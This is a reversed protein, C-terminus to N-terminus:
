RYITDIYRDGRDAFVTIVNLEEDFFHKKKFYKKIAMYASGSSGGAFIKYKNLLEHCGVITSKENVLIYDDMKAQELIKPRKSSGIGPIRRKAPNNEFIVSGVIDVAIVKVNPFKDKVKRSVGTITGGSSVGLFLYDIKDFSNCIENGLSNYYADAVLPNEYQNVWYSNKNEVFLDKVKKIRNLLFGGTHDPKDVKIIEGGYYRILNENVNSIYPDVIAKFRLDYKNCYAALSVGFNGSTSEMIITRANIQKSELLFSLLKSAARDKVSGTPNYLELKAYVNIQPNIVGVLKICPTNGVKELHCELIM